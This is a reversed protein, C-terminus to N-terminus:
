LGLAEVVNQNDQLKSVKLSTSVHKWVLIINEKIESVLKCTKRTWQSNQETIHDVNLGARMAQLLDKDTTNNQQLQFGVDSQSNYEITQRANSSRNSIYLADEAQVANINEAAFVAYRDMVADIYDQRFGASAFGIRAKASFDAGHEQKRYLLHLCMLTEICYSITIHGIDLNVELKELMRLVFFVINIYKDGNLIVKDLNAQTLLTSVPSTISNNKKKNRKIYDNTQNDEYYDM